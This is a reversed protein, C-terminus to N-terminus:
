WAREHTKFFLYTLGTVASINLDITQQYQSLTHDKRGYFGIGANNILVQVDRGSVAQDFVAQPEAAKSLDSQIIAVDVHYSSELESKLDQLKKARRAVVIINMGLEALEHAYVRGIGSSAGTVYAWASKLDEM